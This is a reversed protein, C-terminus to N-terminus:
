PKEHNMASMEVRIGNSGLNESMDSFRHFDDSFATSYAVQVRRQGRPQIASLRQISHSLAGDFGRSDIRHNRTRTGDGESFFLATLGSGYLSVARTMESGDGM